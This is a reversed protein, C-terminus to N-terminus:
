RTDKRPRPILRDLEDLLRDIEESDGRVHGRATDQAARAADLLGLARIEAEVSDELQHQWATRDARLRDICGTLEKVPDARRWDM